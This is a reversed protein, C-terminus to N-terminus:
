GNQNAKKKNINSVLLMYPSEEKIDFWESVHDNLVSPAFPRFNEGYKVKLNLDKQMNKSRQDGLISRAGLKKDLNMRGQFWGIEKGKSM